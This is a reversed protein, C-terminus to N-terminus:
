RLLSEPNWLTGLSHLTEDMTDPSSLLFQLSARIYDSYAASEAAPDGEPHETPVLMDVCQDHESHQVLEESLTM